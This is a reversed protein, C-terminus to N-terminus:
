YITKPGTLCLLLYCGSQIVAQGGAHDYQDITASLSSLLFINQRLWQVLLADRYSGVPFQDISLAM